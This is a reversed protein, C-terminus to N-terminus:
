FMDAWLESSQSLLSPENSSWLVHGLATQRPSSNASWHPTTTRSLQVRPLQRHCKFEGEYPRETAV